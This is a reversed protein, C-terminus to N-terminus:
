AAAQTNHTIVKYHTGFRSLRRRTEDILAITPVIIVINRYTGKAVLADVILSKGFSTPASLVMNQGAELERYIEAQKRHFVIDAGDLSLNDARHYEYALRDRGGLAEPSAYPFLGVNRVLSDLVGPMAEFLEKRDLARIVLERAATEEGSNVIASIGKALAFAQDRNTKPDSLASRLAAITRLSAAM